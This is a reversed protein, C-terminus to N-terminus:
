PRGTRPAGSADRQWQGVLHPVVDDAAEAAVPKHDADGAVDAAVLQRRQEVLGEAAQRRATGRCRPAARRARADPGGLDHAIGIGCLTTLEAMGPM